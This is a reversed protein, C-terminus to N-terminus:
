RNTLSNVQTQCSLLPRWAALEGQPPLGASLALDVRAGSGAGREARAAPTDDVLDYYASGELPGLWAPADGAGQSGSLGDRSRGDQQHRDLDDTLSSSAALKM